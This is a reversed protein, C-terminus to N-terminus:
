EGHAKNLRDIIMRIKHERTSIDAKASKGEQNWQKWKKLDDPMPLLDRMSVVAEHFQDPSTQTFNEMIKVVADIDNTKIKTMIDRQEQEAM